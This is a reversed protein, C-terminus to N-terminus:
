EAIYDRMKNALGKYNDSLRRYTDRLGNGEEFAKETFSHAREMCARYIKEIEAKTLEIKM